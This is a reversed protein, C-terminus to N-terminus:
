LLEVKAVARAANVIQYREVIFPAPYKKRNVARLHLKRGEIKECRKFTATGDHKQIYYDHGVQFGHGSQIGREARISRFEIIEGSKYRQRMSDGSLRVRFLGQDLVRPDAIEPMDSVDAWPGAAISLDFLPIEVIRGPLIQINPEPEQEQEEEADEEDDDGEGIPLGEALQDSVLPGARRATIADSAWRALIEPDSRMAALLRQEIEDRTVGLAKALKERNKGTINPAAEDLWNRITWFNIKSHHAFEPQSMMKKEIQRRLWM